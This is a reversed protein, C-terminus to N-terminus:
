KKVQAQKSLSATKQWKGFARFLAKNVMGQGELARIISTQVKFKMFEARQETKVSDSNIVWPDKVSTFDLSIIQKKLYNKM